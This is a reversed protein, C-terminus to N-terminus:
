TQSSRVDFKSSRVESLSFAAAPDVWQRTVHLGAKAALAAIMELTYKYSSETWIYEGRAFTTSVAAAPIEIRADEQAVLRMEVRSADAHWVAAHAFADLDFNAGLERNMRVLLNRNFAATIQLPDDYALLLEGEPKVLDAGLLIAGDPGAARAMETLLAVAESPDFNGINSGLFLVLRSRDGTSLRPLAADITDCELAVPPADRRLAIRAAAADLARQSVDVLRVTVRRGSSAAGDLVRDLKSGTGGGFELVEIEHPLAEFVSAAYQEIMAIEARTIRYWPLHCIADFLAMGLDDYLWQPPIARPRRAFGAAVDRAFASVM